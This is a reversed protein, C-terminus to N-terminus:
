WGIGECNFSSVFWRKIRAVMWKSKIFLHPNARLLTGRNPHIHHSFNYNYKNRCRSCPLPTSLFSYSTPKLTGDYIHTSTKIPGLLFLPVFLICSRFHNFTCSHHKIRIRCCAYYCYTNKTMYLGGLRSFFWRIVTYFIIM